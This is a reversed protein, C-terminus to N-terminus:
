DIYGKDKIRIKIADNLKKKSTYFRIAKLSTPLDQKIFTDFDINTQYIGVRDLSTLNYLGTLSNLTKCNSIALTKLYPMEKDFNIKALKINDEFKLFKLRKFKRINSIDNFGRVWIIELNEIENNDIEHINERGGLIFKLTKLQKLKNIFEVSTKKISNLSLYELGELNGVSSINKTHGGLILYKLNGYDKLYELNLVKTKTETIILDTLKKLNTLKLIETDKLEYVGLSLKQLHILNGLAYLNDAFFLCDVYLCKVDPIIEFTECNFAAYDHGYFRVGFSKDYNKCLKNIEILIELNYINKSFQVIVHKGEKLDKDILNTDLSTPDTIRIQQQM